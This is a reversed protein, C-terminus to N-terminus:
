ASELAGIVGTAGALWAAVGAFPISCAVAETLEAATAGGRLAFRAHIEVYDERYESANVACLMLDALRPELPSEELAAQRMLFYGEIARPAHETGLAINPPVEGFVGKYYDLIGETTVEDTFEPGPTVVDDSVEALAEVFVRYATIGRSILVNIAAGGAEDATIGGKLAARLYRTTVHPLRKVAGIAAMCLAKHHEPLAGDSHVVDGVRALGEAFKPFGAVLGEVWEGPGLREILRDTNM